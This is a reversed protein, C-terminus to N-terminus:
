KVKKHNEVQATKPTVRKKKVMRPRTTIGNRVDIWAPSTAVSDLPGNRAVYTRLRNLKTTFSAEGLPGHGPATGWAIRTNGTSRLEYVYHRENQRVEPSRSPAIDVLRLPGWADRLAAVLALAGVVRPDTWREGPRPQSAGGDHLMQRLDIRPLLGVESRTLDGVPLLMADHDIPSFASGNYVAALPQRYEVEIQLRNPPSKTIKGVSRIWPHFALATTVRQELRDPTDLISLSGGGTTDGLLGGDRFAELKVDSRIWPPQATLTVSTATVRYQPLSRFSDGTMRRASEIALGVGSLIALATLAGRRALLSQLVMRLPGPILRSKKPTRSAAMAVQPCLSPIRLLRRRRGKTRRM